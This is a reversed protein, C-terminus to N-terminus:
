VESVAPVKTEIWPRQRRRTNVAIVFTDGEKKRLLLELLNKQKAKQNSPKSKSKARFLLDGLL